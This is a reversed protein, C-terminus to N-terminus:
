ATRRAEAVHTRADAVVDDWAVGQDTGSDLREIRRQLEAAWADEYGEDRAPVVTRGGHAADSDLRDLLAVLVRRQERSPLALVDALVAETNRPV